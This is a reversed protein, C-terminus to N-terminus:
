RAPEGKAEPTVGLAIAAREPNTRVKMLRRAAGRVTEGLQNILDLSLAPRRQELSGAAATAPPFRVADVRGVIVGVQPQDATFIDGRKTSFATAVVQPPVPSGEGSRQLNAYRTFPAGAQQAVAQLAGGSRVQAAIADARERIRKQTERITWVQAMEARVDALRPLAPPLVRDVRLAAYRGKGLDIVESEGGAPLEFAARLLEPELAVPQGREDAGQQSLPALSLAPVGAKRAGEVLSAGGERAEEYRQVVEYIREGAAEARVDAEIQPRVQELTVTQGPTIATLKVVSFGLEGRIPQSVEGPQLRFAAEAVRRDAIASQPANDYSVPEVGGARAVAAPAEGARLRQAAQAAAQATKAPVQILTRREPTSLSERRFEFRRQVEAPDVTVQAALDQPNFRVVSLARLEPRRLRDANEQMFTTLQADTPAPVAGVLGPHVLALSLDRVESEFVQAAAAYVRPARLGALVGSGYHLEAIDDRLRAEFRDPTFQNQALQTEYAKQDFRGTVPDFFVPLKRIEQLVLPDSPVVGIKQLSALFAENSALEDLLRVHLGREVVEQNSVTQGTQQQLQAKQADFVRRFEGGTVTRSGVQVVWDGGRPQFVDDLGFVAFSIALLGILIAAVWSKAFQRIRVIM